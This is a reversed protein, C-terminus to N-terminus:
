PPSRIRGVITLQVGVQLLSNRRWCWPAGVRVDNISQLSGTKIGNAKKYLEPGAGMQQLNTSQNESSVKATTSVVTILFTSSIIKNIVIKVRM